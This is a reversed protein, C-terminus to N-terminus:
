FTALQKDPIYTLFDTIQTNFGRGRMDDLILAVKPLSLSTTHANMLRNATSTSLGTSLAIQRVTPIEKREGEPKASEISRLKNLYSNFTIAILGMM